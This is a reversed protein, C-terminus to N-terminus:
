NIGQMHTPFLPHVKFSGLDHRPSYGIEGPIQMVGSKQVANSGIM